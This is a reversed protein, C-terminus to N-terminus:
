AGVVDYYLTFIFGNPTGGQVQTSDIRLLDDQLLSQYTGNIVAATAGAGTASDANDGASSPVIPVTSLLSTWAGGGRKFKIDVATNGSAGAILITLVASTATIDRPVKTVIISSMIGPGAYYGDAEFVTANDGSLADVRDDLVSIETRPLNFWSQDIVQGNSRVPISTSM